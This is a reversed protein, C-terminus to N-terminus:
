RAAAALAQERSGYVEQRVIRGDAVSFVFWFHAAVPAGSSRGTGHQDMEVIVRAGVEELGLVEMQFDGFEATWDEYMQLVGAPGHYTQPDPLPPARFSVIDPHAFELSRELEGRLFADVAARVLETNSGM